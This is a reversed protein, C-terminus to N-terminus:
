GMEKLPFSRDKLGCLPEIFLVKIIRSRSICDTTYFFEWSFGLDSPHTVFPVKNGVYHV